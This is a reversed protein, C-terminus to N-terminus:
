GGVEPLTPLADGSGDLAPPLGLRDLHRAHKGALMAVLDPLPKGDATALTRRRRGCECSAALAGDVPTITLKHGCRQM